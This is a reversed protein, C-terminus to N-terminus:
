QLCCPYMCTKLGHSFLSDSAYTPANTCTNTCTCTSPPSSPPPPARPAAPSACIVFGARVVSGDSRWRFTEGSAVSVGSFGSTGMYRTGGITIYDFYNETSFQTTYLTTAYGVRMTCRERNGYNGSGDTVCQGGNTTQCRSGGSIVMIPPPIICYDWHSTGTGTCGPVATTGSRQFCVLGSACDSDSDCDGACEACPAAVTCGSAGLSTLAPPPPPLPPAQPPSPYYVVQQTVAPETAWKFGLSAGLDITSSKTVDVLATNAVMADDFVVTVAAVTDSEMSVHISLMLDTINLFNPFNIAFLSANFTTNTANVDLSFSLVHQMSAGPPIM